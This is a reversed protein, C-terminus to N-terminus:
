QQTMLNKFQKKVKEYQPTGKTVYPLKYFECAQKWMARAKIEDPSLGSNRYNDFLEKVETYEKTGKSAFRIGLEDCCDSWSPYAKKDPKARLGKPTPKTQVQKDENDSDSDTKSFRAHKRLSM